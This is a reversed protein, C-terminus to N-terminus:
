KYKNVSYGDKIPIFKYLRPNIAHKPCNYICGLCMMCKLKFKPKGKEGEFINATPCNNWCIGCSICNNNAKLDKGFLPAGTKEISAIKSIIKSKVPIKIEDSVDELIDKCIKNIEIKAKNLVEKGQEDSIKIVLNPPMAVVRNLKVNINNNKAIKLIPTTVAKNLWLDNCGVAIISINKIKEQKKLYKLLVTPANFAHISFMVILHDTEINKEKDIEIFNIINVEESNGINLKLQEALYKTNGTPSLYLIEM